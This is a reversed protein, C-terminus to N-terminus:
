TCNTIAWGRSSVGPARSRKAPLDYLDKRVLLAAGTFNAPVSVWYGKWDEPSLLGTEFRAAATDESGDTGRATLTVEYREDSRLIERPLLIGVTEGSRSRGAPTYPSAAVPSRSQM